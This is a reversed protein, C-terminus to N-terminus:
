RALKRSSTKEKRKEKSAIYVGDHHMLSDLLEAYKQMAEEQTDCFFVADQVHKGHQRTYRVAWRNRDKEILKVAVVQM